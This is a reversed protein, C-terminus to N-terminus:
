YIIPIYPSFTAMQETSRLREVGRAEVERMLLSKLSGASGEPLSLPLSDLSTERPTVWTGPKGERFPGRGQKRIEDAGGKVKGLLSCALARGRM